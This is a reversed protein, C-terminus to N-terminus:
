GPRASASELNHIFHGLSGIEDDRLFGDDEVYPSYSQPAPDKREEVEPRESM